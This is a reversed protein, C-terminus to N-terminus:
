KSEEAMKIKQFNGYFSKIQVSPNLQAEAVALGVKRAFEEERSMGRYNSDGIRRLEQLREEAEERERASHFFKM